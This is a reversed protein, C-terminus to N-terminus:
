KVNNIEKSDIRKNDFIFAISIALGTVCGAFIGFIRCTEWTVINLIALLMSIPIAIFSLIGFIM